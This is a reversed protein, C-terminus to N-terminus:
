SEGIIAVFQESKTTPVGDITIVMDGLELGAEDAEGTAGAHARGTSACRGM